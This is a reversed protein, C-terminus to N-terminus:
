HQRLAPYKRELAQRDTETGQKGTPPKGTSTKSTKGDGADEKPKVMYPEESALKKIAAKLQATNVVGDKIEVESLDVLTLAREPNQWQVENASLFANRIQLTQIETRLPTLADLATKLDTKLNEEASKTKREEAEKWKKLEDREKEAETRAAYHRNKEEELAAIKKQPDGGSKDDDTGGTKSKDDAGGDDTKKSDDGGSGDTGGAGGAGSKDGDEASGFIPGFSMIQKLSLRTSKM